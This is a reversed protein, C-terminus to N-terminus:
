GEPPEFSAKLGEWLDQSAAWDEEHTQFNLAFGYSSDALVFQLNYAHLDAGGECYSYEWLVANDSGAMTTPEMAREEYCDHSSGFSESQAEAAAVADPGPTDTHDIRLYSGTEPDTFDTRTDIPRVDWGEPYEIRYGTTPDEYSADSGAGGPEQAAEESAGDAGGPATGGGRGGRTAPDRESGLNLVVLALVVALLVVGGLVAAWPFSRRPAPATSMEDSRAAVATYRRTPAPPPEAVTTSGGAAAAELMVKTRATDPRAAPDKVMLAAIVPGLAGASQPTPPEEGVVATLTAIAQGKDFPPSGEVALYLTAGLSWLDSAPGTANSTAQEPAMYSPSGLIMGTATLRPDDTMAAIGFDALKVGGRAPLMVNGPKVDRHTIGVAQAAELAALVGLGVTAAARPDLPGDTAVKDALTPADILEMVIYSRGGEELVDYVTVVNPHNIRAAARAERLVREKTAGKDEPTLTEPLAIEKVAVRRGLLEDHARWVEGM